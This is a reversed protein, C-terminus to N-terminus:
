RPKILELYSGNSQNRPLNTIQNKLYPFSSKKNAYEESKTFNVELYEFALSNYLELRDKEDKAKQLQNELQNIKPTIKNQAYLTPSLTLLSLLLLRTIFYRTYNM